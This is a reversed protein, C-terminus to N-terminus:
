PEVKLTPSYQTYRLYFKDPSYYKFVEKEFDEDCFKEDVKMFFDTSPYNSIESIFFDHSIKNEVGNISYCIRNSFKLPTNKITYSKRASQDKLPYLYLGCDRLVISNINYCSILKSAKYPIKVITQEVTTESNEYTKGQLKKKTHLTKGPLILNNIASTETNTITNTTTESQTFTKSRYYDYAFGNLIFYSQSLDVKILKNTKNYITFGIDGKNKWLNYTIICCSDEYVLDDYKEVNSKQSKVQYLQYYVYQKTSM